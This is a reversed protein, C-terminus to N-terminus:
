SFTLLNELSPPSFISNGLQFITPFCESSLNDPNSVAECVVSVLSTKIM